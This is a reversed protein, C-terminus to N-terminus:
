AANGVIVADTGIVTPTPSAARELFRRKPESMRDLYGIGRLLATVLKADGVAPSFRLLIVPVDVPLDDRLTGDLPSVCQTSRTALIAM